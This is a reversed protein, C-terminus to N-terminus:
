TTTLRSFVPLLVERGKLLPSIATKQYFSVFTYNKNFNSSKTAM